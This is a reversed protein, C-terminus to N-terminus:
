AAKGLAHYQDFLGRFRHETFFHNSMAIKLQKMNSMAWPGKQSVAVAQHARGDDRRDEGPPSSLLNEDFLSLQQMVVVVFGQAEGGTDSHPTKAGPM